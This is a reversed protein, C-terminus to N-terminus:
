GIHHIATVPQLRSARVAPWCAAAATITTFTACATLLQSWHVSLHITDSLLIFRMADIPVPIQAADISLGIAAGLLAGAATATLGLLLAEAMFLTLVQHKGMGIARLTGIEATRERVAIWMTNMIGIIIIVSLIAVLIFSISDVATIIWTLFSVEDDWTTLDLRQGVWDEGLIGEFKFFFPRPDHDLVPVGLPEFSARLRAMHQPADAIDDFYVLFAGTTDENLDYLRRLVPKATIVSFNSLLGIDRAVAVITVDTTNAQGGITETKITLADNVDVKLRKAQNAFLLATGPESLRRPDADPHPSNPGDPTYDSRPALSLVQLLRPESAVDVGSLGAQISGTESVVKGWGLLRDVVYVVGPTNLLHQRVRAADTILPAVANNSPKFFGGVNVHGASLSTAATILSDSIGRSLSMLLILLATVTTLAAGLLLSRRRAALLNRAALRLYTQTHM